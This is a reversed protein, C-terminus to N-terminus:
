KPRTGDGLPEIVQEDNDEPAVASQKSLKGLREAEQQNRPVGLGLLYMYSMAGQSRPDNRAVGKLFWAAAKQYNQPFSIGRFYQHGVFYPDLASSSLAREILVSARREDGTREAIVALGFTALANDRDSAANFYKTAADVNASVGAGALYATGMVVQAGVDPQEACQGLQLLSRKARESSFDLPRKSEDGMGWFRMVGLELAAMDDGKVAAEAWAVLAYLYDGRSVAALGRDSACSAAACASTIALETLLVLAFVLRTAFRSVAEKEGRM